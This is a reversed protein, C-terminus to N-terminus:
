DRVLSVLASDATQTGNGPCVPTTICGFPHIDQIILMTDKM